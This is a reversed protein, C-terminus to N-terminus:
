ATMEGMAVVTYGEAELAATCSPADVVALGRPTMDDRTLPLWHGVRRPLAGDKDCALMEATDGVVTVLVYEHMEHTGDRLLQPMPPDLYYLGARDWIKGRGYRRILAAKM